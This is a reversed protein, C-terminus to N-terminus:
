LTVNNIQSYHRVRHRQLGELLDKLMDSLQTVVQHHIALEVFSDKRDYKARTILGNRTQWWDLEELADHFDKAAM